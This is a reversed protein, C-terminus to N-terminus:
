ADLTGGVVMDIDGSELTWVRDGLEKGYEVSPPQQVWAEAAILVTTGNADILSFPFKGSNLLEDNSQHQTLVTNTISTQLLTLEITGSRDNSKSRAAEGSAGNVVTWSQNNRSVTVFTGDAFGQAIHAVGINITLKKPDYDKTKISAM